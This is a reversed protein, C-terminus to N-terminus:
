LVISEGYGEIWLSTRRRDLVELRNIIGWIRRDMFKNEKSGDVELRNIIGWIRRDMFKNEKSGCRLVISLEGLYKSMPHTVLHGSQDVNTGEHVLDWTEM